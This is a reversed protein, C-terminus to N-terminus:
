SVPLYESPITAIAVPFHAKRNATAAAAAESAGILSPAALLLFSLAALALFASATRGKESQARLAAKEM